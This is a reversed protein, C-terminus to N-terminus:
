APPSAPTLDMRMELKHRTFGTKEYAKIAAVNDAYVELRIENIHQAAAWQKLAEIIKQNIGQGRFAPVVFMFGLYAYQRHNLYPKATEIRAYGSGIVEDNVQAVLLEIHSAKIMEEIDYYHTHGPQLTKDFPREAAILQQEFDLLTKLDHITAKRIIIDPM